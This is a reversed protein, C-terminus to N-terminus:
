ENWLEKITKELNLGFPNDNSRTNARFKGRPTGKRISVARSVPMQLFGNPDHEKIWRYADILWANRYEENQLYFWTIEDYGWIFYRNPTAQGPMDSYGFNDFEVLYPLSKCSWGSPTTCAKSRGYLADFYGVELIGEMPKDVVEKIRLPKANFDLLSRGSVLLGGTRTHADLLVWGRRAKRKAYNRLMALFSDWHALDPDAVGIMATQGLHLAECGLDIYISGLFMLWLQSETRTIDPVSAGHWWQDVHKGEVNLMSDYRFYRDEVPLGFEEFTRAPIKVSGVSRTVIEFLAAQFIIDPDYAHIEDMIKKAQAFYDPHNLIDEYGWRYITRGLFKTGTNKILRIDDNKYPYSGHNAYPDVELLETISVARSLYNELVERSIGSEDFYYSKQAVSFLSITSFVAIFIEKV